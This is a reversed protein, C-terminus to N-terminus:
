GPKSGFIRGTLKKLVPPLPGRKPSAVPASPAVQTSTATEATVIELDSDELDSRMVKINDLSLETQVVSKGFRPLIPKQEARRFRGPLRGLFGLLKVFTALALAVVAHAWIKGRAVWGPRVGPKAPAAIPQPEFAIVQTKKHEVVPAVPLAMAPEPQLVPEATPASQVPTEEPSVRPEAPAPQAFPNKSSGFKPLRNRHSVEYRAANPGGVLSRGTALLKGFSM